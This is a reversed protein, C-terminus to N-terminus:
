NAPLQRMFATFLRVAEAFNRSKGSAGPRANKLRCIEVRCYCPKQKIREPAAKKFHVRSWTPYELVGGRRSRSTHGSIVQDSGSLGSPQTMGSILTGDRPVFMNLMASLLDLKMLRRGEGPSAVCSCSSRRFISTDRVAPSRTGSCSVPSTMADKM